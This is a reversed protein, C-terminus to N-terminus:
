RSWHLKGYETLTLAGEDILPIKMEPRTKKISMLLQFLSSSAFTDREGVIVIEEIYELRDKVFNKLEIVALLDDDLEIELIDGDITM